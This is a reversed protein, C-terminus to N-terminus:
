RFQLSITGFAPDAAGDGGNQAIRFRVDANAGAPLAIWNTIKAGIPAAMTIADGSAITGGGITTWATGNWYQPYLRPSNVSASATVLTAAIRVETYNSADYFLENRSANALFQEANAQNTLTANGSANSHFNLISVGGGGGGAPTAWTGDGRWYTSGSAGTGGNLRTIALNGTLDAASGSTAVTALGTITAAAQTGTHNARSLLTADSSNATAGSAIGDLKSKDTSSMLGKLGTTAVNLISTAQTASLDEPDGTGATVRGKFTSTAMDAAKANTVINNGITLTATGASSSADGGFAPLQAANLTGSLNAASGSSAVTALGLTSRQAAADADDLLAKGATTVDGGMKATTVVGNDITWTTRSASVTVDGKDGDVVGGNATPLVGKVQTTLEIKTQAQLPLALMAAILLIKLWRM